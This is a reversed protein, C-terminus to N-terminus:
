ILLLNLFMYLIFPTLTFDVELEARKGIAIEKHLM